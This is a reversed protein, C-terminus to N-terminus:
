NSLVVCNHYFLIRGGEYVDFEQKDELWCYPANKLSVVAREKEISPILDYVSNDGDEIWRKFYENDEDYGYWVVTDGEWILTGVSDKVGLCQEITINEGDALWKFCEGEYSQERDIVEGTKNCRIRFQKEKM